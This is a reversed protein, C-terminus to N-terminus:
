KTVTISKTASLASTRNGRKVTLKYSYTAGKEYAGYKADFKDIFTTSKTNGIYKYTNGILRYVSYSKADKVNQISIKVQGKKDNTLGTIWPAAITARITKEFSKGEYGGAYPVVKYTYDTGITLATDAYKTTKNDVTALLTFNDEAGKIKRYIKYGEVGDIGKWTVTVKAEENNLLYFTPKAFPIKDVHIVMKDHGNRVLAKICLNAPDKLTAFDIWEGTGRNGFTEGINAQSYYIEEEDEYEWSEDIAYSVKENFNVTIWYKEGKDLNLGESLDVKQYGANTISIDQTYMCNGNEIAKENEVNTYIKINGTVPTFPMDGFASPYIAIATLTQNEKATVTMAIGYIDDDVGYGFCGDYQYRYDSSHLPAATLAAISFNTAMIVDYYSLYLYGSDGWSDGWSNKIIWAGDGEPESVFNKKSYNDDWGVITVAHDPQKLDDTWMPLYAANTEENFYEPMTWSEGCVYSTCAGYRTILEKIAGRNNMPVTYVGNFDILNYQYAYDMTLPETINEIPCVDESVPGYGKMLTCAVDFSDGGYYYWEDRLDIGEGAISEDQDEFIHMTFYGLHYESFDYEGLGMMLANSELSAVSSFVWCTGGKQKKVPTVLGYDRLDFKSPFPQESAEYAVAGMAEVQREFSIGPHKIRLGLLDAYTEQEKAAANAPVFMGSLCLALTLVISIFRKKM